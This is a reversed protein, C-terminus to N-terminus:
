LFLGRKKQMSIGGDEWLGKVKKGPLGGKESFPLSLVGTEEEGGRINVVVAGGYSGPKGGERKHFLGSVLWL